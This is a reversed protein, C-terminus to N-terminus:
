IKWGTKLIRQKRKTMEVCYDKDRKSLERTIDCANCLRCLECSLCKKSIMQRPAISKQCHIPTSEELEIYEKEMIKNDCNSYRIKGNCDVYIARITSQCYLSTNFQCGGFFFQVSADTYKELGKENIELWIDMMKYLPYHEASIGLPLLPNLKCITGLERALKIHDLALKENEASIVSIFMPVYGVKEKFLSCVKKFHQETYVVDDNIKRRNGFQFSTVVSIRPNLFLPTWYEPAEEFAKLNSIIAIHCQSANLLEEFYSKGALLPEGGNIILSSPKLISIQKKIAEHLYTQHQIDSKGASCFDCKFNCRGTAKIILEM